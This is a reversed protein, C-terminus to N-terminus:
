VRESDCWFRSVHIEESGRRPLPGVIREEACENSLYDRVVQAHERASHMNDISSRCPRPYSFGIRFGDRLGSVVYEAFQEDPHSRLIRKWVQWRLPTNIVALRGMPIHASSNSPRDSSCRRLIRLSRCRNVPRNVKRM